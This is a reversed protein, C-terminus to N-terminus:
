DDLRARVACGADPYGLGGLDDLVRLAVDVDRQDVFQRHDEVTETDVGILSVITGFDILRNIRDVQERGAEQWGLYDLM